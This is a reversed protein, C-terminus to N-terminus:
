IRSAHSISYSMYNFQTAKELSQSCWGPPHLQITCWSCSGYRWWLAPWCSSQCPASFIGTNRSSSGREWCDGINRWAEGAETHHVAWGTLCSAKPLFKGRWWWMGSCLNTLSKWYFNGPQIAPVGIQLLCWFIHEREHLHLGLSTIRM